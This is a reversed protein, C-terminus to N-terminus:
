RTKWGAAIRAELEEIPKLGSLADYGTVCCAGEACALAVCEAAGKGRLVATLFAAISTDGAGTGSLIVDPVFCPQVGEKDAWLERDLELRAGVESLKDAPATRYYMGASGCKIVVVKCGMGMLMDALPKVESLMDLGETMDGGKAALREYRPRDLM